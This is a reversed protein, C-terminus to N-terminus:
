LRQSWSINNVYLGIPNALIQEDSTPPFISLTISAQWEQSDILKGDRGRTEETWEVRWTDASIPLVSEVTVNITQDQARKFPDNLRFYDNLTNYAAGNKNLMAYAEDILKREAAVDPYVSRIDVVFHALQSRIMRTDPTFAIDARGAAHAAGLKDVEVIYPIIHNESGIYVIGTTAIMAIGLSLCAVWKWTRAAVIFEGYRELWEQRAQLYINTESTKEPLEANKPKFAFKM